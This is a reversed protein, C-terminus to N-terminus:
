PAAKRSTSSPQALAESRVSVRRAFEEDEAAACTDHM